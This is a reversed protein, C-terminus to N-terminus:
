GNEHKPTQIIAPSATEGNETIDGDKVGFEFKTAALILGNAYSRVVCEAVLIAM